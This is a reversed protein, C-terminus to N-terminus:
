QPQYDLETISLTGDIYGGREYSGVWIVYSGPRPDTLSVMPNLSDPADDNCIWEGAPSYVLLTPDEGGDAEFFVRIEDTNGAWDLRVDPARAAFGLCSGGLYEVDVSGGATLTIEEPDPTFGARLSVTGFYAERSPDLQDSGSDLPGADLETIYLTGAVFSGATYSAVWIDYQGEPAGTLSILPDFADPGSDDNCVWTGDPRNVLLTTDGGDDASFYITLDSTDGEWDLRFDPAIAAFGTCEGGLYAADVEGGSIMEVMHPDDPFGAELEVTGFTPLEAFDLRGNEIVPSTTGAAIASQNSALGGEIAATVAGIALVGGLRGGTSDETRVATPIGVIEGRANVVLGGSNGPAIQADTQFWVPFRDDNLTGNRISTVAGETLALYGEGIGPYGFVFLQDGRRVDASTISLHPLNLGSADVPRGDIHRDIQLVAFDVEDSYGEIRALYMPVPQENVDDLIQIEFDDGEEVVHRNTFIRGVPEVITGSGSSIEEGGERAVIRVVSRSIRDIDDPSLSSQGQATPPLLILGSLAGAIISTFPKM